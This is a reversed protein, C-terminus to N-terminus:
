PSEQIPALIGGLKTTAQVVDIIGPMSSEFSRKERPIKIATAFHDDGAARETAIRCM